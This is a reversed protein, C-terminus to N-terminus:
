ETPGPCLTVGYFKLDPSSTGSPNISVVDAFYAKCISLGRIVFSTQTTQECIANSPEDIVEYYCVQFLSSCLSAEWAITITTETADIETGNYPASPEAESTIAQTFVGFGPAEYGNNDFVPILNFNQVACPELYTAIDLCYLDHCTVKHLAIDNIELNFYLIDYASPTINWHLVVWSEGVSDVKFDYILGGLIGMDINCKGVNGQGDVGIIDAQLTCCDAGYEVIVLENTGPTFHDINVSNGEPKAYVSYLGSAEDQLNAETTWNHTACIGNYNYGICDPSKTLVCMPKVFDTEEPLVVFHAIASNVSQTQKLSQATIIVTSVTGHLTGSPVTFYATVPLSDNTSLYISPPDMSTLFNMDDTGAISFESELGFNTVLFMATASEGPRASLDDSNAWVDVTTQVPMMLVSMLRCFANGSAVHGLLRIYFPDEPLPQTRIYLQDTVDEHYEILRLSTGVKDIFEVQKINVVNSELHGIMTIELYYVTDMLPRGETQRYHPHPPSPDLIAFDGLFDLTSTAIVSVSYNGSSDTVLEWDGYNPATWKIAKFTDTHSVVEVDNMTDLAAPDLLDYDTGATVDTIAASTVSGSIRVEFNIISDDILVQNNHNGIIGTLSIITVTSTEVGGDIISVIDAVDFKDTSILLGGTADALDQYQQVPDSSIRGNISSFSTKGGSTTQTSFLPSDREDQPGKKYIDSLIITVKNHQQQALATVSEMLEAADQARDDTFCFIDGYDPTASLALQLAQCFNEDGGSAYLANVADLFVKPDSTKTMPGVVPSNYPVLIYLEAVTNNVIEAVQAKVADIDDQMSGTVDICISLASGLYLDFLRRYKEDGVADLLVQLYHETAQVALEAAQEHLHHHPSFCPYATDKNIGGIAEVDASDDLVGGHSCKGGTTPKPILFGGGITDNYNYYGSSLSAGVIVNGQCEGQSSPCANCVDESPNATIGINNGPIGLGELINSNGQEIWTSHSYFKQLSHLSTGLLGRAASYAEDRLISTLIQPYRAILTAQLGDLHEGDGQIAPDYRTQASSDTKVNASAISNVAKIFRTPSSNKGYYAHYLESLTADEPLFFDPASGPPPNLMFFRRISKRIGERTIWEHDKTEGTAQEPCLISIVDPDTTNLPTALFAETGKSLCALVLLLFTFEM